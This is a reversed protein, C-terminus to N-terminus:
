NFCVFSPSDTTVGFSFVSHSVAIWVSFAEQRRPFRPLAAVRRTPRAHLRDRIAIGVNGFLLQGLIDPFFQLEPWTCRIAIGDSQPRKLGGKFAVDGRRALDAFRDLALGRNAHRLLHPLRRLEIQARDRRPMDRDAGVSISM